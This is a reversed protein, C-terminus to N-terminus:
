KVIAEFTIRQAIEFCGGSIFGFVLVGCSLGIIQEISMPIPLTLGYLIVVFVMFASVIGMIMYQKIKRDVAKYDTQLIM